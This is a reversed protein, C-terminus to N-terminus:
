AFTNFTKEVNDDIVKSVSDIETKLASQETDLQKLKLELNKDEKQIIETKNNLDSITKDYVNKRYEYENYADNLAEEDKQRSASLSFEKGSINSPYEDDEYIKISSLRGSSTKELIGKVQTTSNQHFTYAYSDSIKVDNSDQGAVELIANLEDATIFHNVKKSDQYFYYNANSDDVTYMNSNDVKIEKGDITIKGAKTVPSYEKKTEEDYTNYTEATVYTYTGDDNKKQYYNPTKTVGLDANPYCTTFGDLTDSAVSYIQKENVNLSANDGTYAYHNASDYTLILDSYNTDTYTLPISYITGSPLSVKGVKFNNGNSAMKDIVNNLTIIYENENVYTKTYNGITYDSAGYSATSNELTYVTNYYEAEVPPTPVDLAMMQNLLNSSENALATRQQNIQQGQYEVNSKRATLGLFRAQSAAMGM